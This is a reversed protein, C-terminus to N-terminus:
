GLGRGGPVRLRLGRVEMGGESVFLGWEGQAHDYMRTNLAVAENVYVQCITGNVLVQLFIEEGEELRVPRETEAQFPLDGRRPWQDIVVRQRALDLRVFYGNEGDGSARLMVGCSRTGAQPRMRLELLACQPLEGLGLYRYGAGSDLQFDEEQEPEVGGGRFANRITEPMAVALTGDARQRLEHVALNGGWQWAGDDREGERTPNWGFLYRKMGDGASKAAYLARGDFADDAPTLWPGHPSRAMRYRTLCAESFESFLLYWWEGMQFLDPCEHTFYMGPAYLPERVEWNQLDASACLATCGRRRSVGGKHRAALLMWYEGAEGNWFVFPDRWDHPEFREPLAFFTDQPLKTWHYLDDSVAHMVAQEPKGAQRFHPNHGTYFIHFRGEAAIVSGTFVYLDQEARSGRPLCEGHDRFHVFDRTVLHAWPTGEGHGAVDRYDRLYFLHYEGEWFFPIFDGAWAGEPKFHIMKEGM